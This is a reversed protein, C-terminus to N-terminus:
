RVVRRPSIFRKKEGGGKNKSEEGFTMGISIRHSDMLGNASPIFAYDISQISNELLTGRYGVGISLSTDGDNVRYGLRGFFTKQYSYELGTFVKFTRENDYSSDVSVTLDHEPNLAFLYEAGVRGSRPLKDEYDIYKLSGIINYGAFGLILNEMKYTGGIDFTLTAANYTEVLSSMLYKVTVGLNLNKMLINKMGFAGSFLYDNQASRVVSNGLSDIVDMSGGQFAFVSIGFVGLGKLPTVFAGYEYGTDLVGKIYMAGVQMNEIDALAGPNYNISYVDSAAVFAGGRASPRAGPCTDLMFGGATGVGAYTSVTLLMTLVLIIFTKM